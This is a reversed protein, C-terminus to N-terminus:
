MTKVPVQFWLLITLCVLEKLFRDLASGDRSYAHVNGLIRPAVFRAAPLGCDLSLVTYGVRSSCIGM